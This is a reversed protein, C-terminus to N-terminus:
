AYAPESQVSRILRDAAQLQEPSGDVGIWSSGEAGLVGGAAVLTATVGCLAQLADLETYARGPLVMLRPGQSGPANLCEALNALDGPVRKEVGVPCILRIRRGSVLPATAGATGSRHDGILVAARRRELDLANAGKLVLDGEQLSDAVDFITADTRWVGQSIIVDRAPGGAAPHAGPPITMGRTFVPPLAMKADSWTDRLAEAVYRNTTGAIIVLTRTRAAEQVEPDAALGLGILRKGAAVTILYTRM